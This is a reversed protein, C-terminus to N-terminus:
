YPFIVEKTFGKNTRWTETCWPIASADFCLCSSCMSMCMCRWDLRDVSDALRDAPSSVLTTLDGYM